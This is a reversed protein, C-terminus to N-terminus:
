IGAELATIRAELEQITAVLLPVIKAQDIGQPVIETETGIVNNDEDYINVEATADKEGSVAEPVVEAVEHALFGDVTTDPDKIFNFRIPNLQKVRETANTIPTNNEKLRYDSSTNYSTSSGNTYITGVGTTNVSFYMLNGAVDKDLAINDSGVANSVQMRGNNGFKIGTTAYSTVTKGVLIEGISTVRMRENGDKDDLQLIRDGSNDGAQIKLGNGSATSNNILASFDTTADSVQFKVAPSSTGIGVRNNTSDVALTNTDVTLSDATITGTVDVGASTTALKEANDYYLKVAGDATATISEEGDKAQLKAVGSDNFLKLAM